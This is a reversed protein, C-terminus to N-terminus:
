MFMTCFVCSPIPDLEGCLKFCLFPFPDLEGHHPLCLFWFHDLVCCLPFCFLFHIWSVMSCFVCSPFPDLEGCLMFCSLCFSGAWWRVSSVFLLFSGAWSPPFVTYAFLIWSVKSHFCFVCFPDLVCCLPFCFLFHIWSVMSCFVFSPFPDLEGCLMCYFLGFSGAWWPASSVFLLFSGAWRPPFVSYAFLIWSVM